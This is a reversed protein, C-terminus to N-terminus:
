HSDFCWPIVISIEPFYCNRYSVSQQEINTISWVQRRRSFFIRVNMGRKFCGERDEAEVLYKANMNEWGLSRPVDDPIFDVGLTKAEEVGTRGWGVATKEPQWLWLWPTTFPLPWAVWRDARLRSREQSQHGAATNAHGGKEGIESCSMGIAELPAHLFCGFESALRRSKFWSRWTCTM